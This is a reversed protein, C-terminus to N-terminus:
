EVVMPLNLELCWEAIKDMGNKGIEGQGPYAHRDKKNGMAEKSDNYHVLVISDPFSNNWDKLYEHADHGAAFVHCTDICIKIKKMEDENFRSYFKKFCELDWCVESGQGSSTEILLPNSESICGNDYVTKINDYMNDLAKEYNLKLAKGCHVIVGKFGLKVGIDLEYVLCDYAKEMFEETKRSLNILYISHIYIQLNNEIVYDRTQQIDTDNLGPRRWFKPSGTFIQTPKLKNSESKEYFTTLSRYFTKNKPIHTGIKKSYLGFNCSVNEVSDGHDNSCDHIMKKLQEITTLHKM